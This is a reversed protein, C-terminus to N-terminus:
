DSKETRAVTLVFVKQAGAMRLVRSCESATAGTTFLDDTLIVTKGAIQERPCCIEIAGLINARREHPRLGYMARTRRTKRLCTAAPIELERSLHGALLAIHDYGRRRINQPNTPVHTILDAGRIDADEGIRSRLLRAYVAAYEKRGGFKFRHISKRVHGEYSFCYLGSTFFEGKLRDKQLVLSARCRRCIGEAQEEPELLDHCFTCKPPYLLNLLGDAWRRLGEEPM